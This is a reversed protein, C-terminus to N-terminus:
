EVVDAEGERIELQNEAIPGWQLGFLETFRVRAEDLDPVVIGVHFMESLGM